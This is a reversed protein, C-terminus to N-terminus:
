NPMFRCTVTYGDIKSSYKIYVNIDSRNEPVEMAQLPKIWAQEEEAELKRIFIDPTYFTDGDVVYSQEAVRKSLSQQRCTCGM